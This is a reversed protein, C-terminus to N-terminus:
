DVCQICCWMWVTQPVENWLLIFDTNNTRNSAPLYNNAPLKDEMNRTCSQCIVLLVSRASWYASVLSLLCPHGTSVIDAMTVLKTGWITMTRTSCTPSTPPMTWWQSRPGICSTTAINPRKRTYTEQLLIRRECGPFPKGGLMQMLEYAHNQEKSFVEWEM